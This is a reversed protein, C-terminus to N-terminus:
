PYAGAGIAAESRRQKRKGLTRAVCRILTDHFSAMVDIIVRYINNPSGAHCM